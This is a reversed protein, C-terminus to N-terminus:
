PRRARGIRSRGVRGKRSRRCRRQDECRMFPRLRCRIVEIEKLVRQRLEIQAKLASVDWLAAGPVIFLSVNDHLRCLSSEVFDM